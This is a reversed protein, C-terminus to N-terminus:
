IETGQLSKIKVSPIALISTEERLNYDKYIIQYHWRSLADHKVLTCANIEAEASAQLFNRLYVKEPEIKARFNSVYYKDWFTPIGGKFYHLNKRELALGNTAQGIRASYDTNVRHRAFFSGFTCLFFSSL